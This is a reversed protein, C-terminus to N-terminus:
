QAVSMPGVQGFNGAALVIDLIDVAGDGNLDALTDNTGYQQAIYALDLINIQGDGSTDGALLTIVNPPAFDDSQISAPLGSQAPLFGPHEFTFPGGAAISFSGDGATVTQEGTESTVIIGSHDTRGQLQLVGSASGSGCDAVVTIAGAVLQHDIPQGATSALIVNELM